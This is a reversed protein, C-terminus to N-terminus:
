VLQDVTLSVKRLNLLYTTEAGNEWSHGVRVLLFQFFQELGWLDLRQLIMETNSGLQLQWDVSSQIKAKFNQGFCSLSLSLSLSLLVLRPIACVEKNSWLEYSARSISFGWTFFFFVINNNNINNNNSDFIEFFSLLLYVDFIKFSLDLKRYTASFYKKSAVLALDEKIQVRSSTMNQDRPTVVFCLYEANALPDSYM